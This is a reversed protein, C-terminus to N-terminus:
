ITILEKPATAEELILDQTPRFAYGDHVALGITHTVSHIFKAGFPNDEIKKKVAAQIDKGNAGPRYMDIAEAQVEKVTEYLQTDKQTPTGFFFTRTIDSCYKKYIAGYDMLAFQGRELPKEGGFYHPEAAKPGFATITIFSPGTAGKKQMLHNIEAAVEYEKIGERYYPIIESAVESVIKCAVRLTEIEDEDKVLRAKKISESVDIFEADPLAKKLEKFDNYTIDRANFGIKTLGKLLKGIIESSESPMKFLNLPIGSAKASEEELFSTVLELKGDPFAIVTSGEFLGSILGSLYFFTHDTHPEVGNQLIIADLEGDHKSLIRQVREKIIDGRTL